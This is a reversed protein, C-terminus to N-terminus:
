KRKDSRLGEYIKIDNKYSNILLFAASTVIGAIFPLFHLIFSINPIVASLILTVIIGSAYTISTKKAKEPMSFITKFDNIIRTGWMFFIISSFGIVEVGALPWLLSSVIYAPLLYRYDTGVFLVSISIMNGLLHFINAHSFHFTFMNIPLDIFYMVSIFVCLSFPVIKGVNFGTM